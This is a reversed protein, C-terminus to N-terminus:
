QRNWAIVLRWILINFYYFENRTFYWGAENSSLWEVGFQKKSGFQM